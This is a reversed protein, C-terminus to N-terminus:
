VVNAVNRHVFIEGPMLGVIENATVRSDACGIWLYEPSQQVALTRFFGPREAEIRAAWQRNNVFLEPLYRMRLRQQGTQSPEIRNLDYFDRVPLFPMINSKFIM